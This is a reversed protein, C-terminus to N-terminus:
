TPPRPSLAGLIAARLTSENLDETPIRITHYDGAALWADRANDYDRQEEHTPGDVEVLLRHEACYFDAVFPGLPHQRRFKLGLLRRGRLLEWVTREASTSERRLERALATRRPRTRRM